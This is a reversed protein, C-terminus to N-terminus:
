ASWTEVVACHKARKDNTYTFEVCVSSGSAQGSVDIVAEILRRSGLEFLQTVSTATTLTTGGNRSGKVILDTGLTIADVPEVVFLVKIQAPVFDIAKTVTRIIADDVVPTAEGFVVQAVCPRNGSADGTNKVNVWRHLWTNATDTSTVTRGASEDNTNTFSLTGLLVGDTENAPAAGSAKGYLELTTADINSAGTWFGKDNSGYVKVRGIKKAVADTTGISDSTDNAAGYLSTAFGRNTTGDFAVSAALSGNQDLGFRWPTGTGGPIDAISVSSTTYGVNLVKGTPDWTYGSSAAGNVGDNSAYGDAWGKILYLASGLSKAASVAAILTQRIDDPSSGGGAGDAGKAAVKLWKGAALDTAFVGSVHDLLAAYAEGNVVAVSRPATAVYNQGTAWNVPAAWAAPGAVGQPGQDGQAGTEGPPGAPLVAVLVWRGAALDVAFSAGSTHAIAARYLGEGAIVGQQLAYDVGPAWNMAPALGATQLEASLSDYTVVGNQLKGDSRMVGQVFVALNHVGASLGALDNDVQQGPFSGDGQAASFDTYSYSPSYISPYPL